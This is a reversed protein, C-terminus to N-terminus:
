HLKLYNVTFCFASVLVPQVQLKMGCDGGILNNNQIIDHSLQSLRMRHKNLNHQALCLDLLHCTAILSYQVRNAHCQMVQAVPVVTDSYQSLLQKHYAIAVQALEITQRAFFQLSIDRTHVRLQLIVVKGKVAWPARYFAM